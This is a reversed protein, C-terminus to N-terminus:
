GDTRRQEVLAYGAHDGQPPKVIALFRWGHEALTLLTDRLEYATEFQVVEYRPPAGGPPTM